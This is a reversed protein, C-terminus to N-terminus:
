FSSKHSFCVLKMIMYCEKEFRGFKQSRWFEKATWFLHEGALVVAGGAPVISQERDMTASQQKELFSHVILLIRQTQSRWVPNSQMWEAKRLFLEETLKSGGGKKQKEGM